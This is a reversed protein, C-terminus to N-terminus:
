CSLATLQIAPFQSQGALFNSGAFTSHLQSASFQSQGALFNALFNLNALRCYPPYYICTVPASISSALSQASRITSALSPESAPESFSCKITSDSFTARLTMPTGVHQLGYAHGFYIQQLSDLYKNSVKMIFKGVTISSVEWAM